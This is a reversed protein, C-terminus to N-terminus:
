PSQRNTGSGADRQVPQAPERAAFNMADFRIKQADNLETEFNALAVKISLTARWTSDLRAQITDLRSLASAPITTPCHTELDHAADDFSRRIDDLADRQATTPRVSQKIENISWDIASPSGCGGAINGPRIQRDLSGQSSAAAFRSQQDANLAQEFDLLPQRVIDLAMSLEELQSEVLQLRAVPQAPIEKACSKALYGSTVGLAGGLRQLLQLQDATLTVENSIRGIVVSPDFSAQCFNSDQRPAKAFATTFIAQYDFPWPSSYAPFFINEIISPLAISPYLLASTMGKSSRSENSSGSESRAIDNSRIRAERPNARMYLHHRHYHHGVRPLGFHFPGLHLGFAAAPLPSLVVAALATITLCIAGIKRM